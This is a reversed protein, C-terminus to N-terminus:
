HDLACQTGNQICFPMQIPEALVGSAVLRERMDSLRPSAETQSRNRGESDKAGSWLVEAAACARPWVMKDINVPDTQEAWAHVEGGVVLHQDSKPVGELPDYAYMVRWNHRPSCYDAYPWYKASAVGQTFDM